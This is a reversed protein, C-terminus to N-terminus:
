LVERLLTACAAMDSVRYDAASHQDLPAVLITRCGARIGATIDRESDGIMWSKSLDLGHKEAAELLMGPNPKRNPHANDDATCSFIDTLALGEREIVDLLKKHIAVLETETMIGLGVGRQNTVIVTVYARECAVRLAELFAPHIHFDAAREVYGPGPSENVIGDRDFFVCPRSNAKSKLGM